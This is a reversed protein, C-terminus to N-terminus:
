YISIFQAIELLISFYFWLYNLVIM